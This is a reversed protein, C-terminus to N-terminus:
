IIEEPQRFNKAELISIKNLRRRFREEGSFPTSLWIHVIKNAKEPTLFDAPLCLVNTDDDHRSDFAQDPSFILAARVNRFKNAVINVGVGSGCILIGRSNEYEYSVKQAVKEAFDVFDDKEDYYTNGFDIVEYYGEEKLIQKLYEKLKFGRHDAGLYIVM